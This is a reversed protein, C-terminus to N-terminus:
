FKYTCEKDKDFYIITDFLNLNFAFDSNIWLYNFMLYFKFLFRHFIFIFLILEIFM